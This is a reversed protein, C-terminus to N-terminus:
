LKSVLIITGVLSGIMVAIIGGIILMDKLKRKRKKSTPASTDKVRAEKVAKTKLKKEKKVKEVVPREYTVAEQNAVSTTQTQQIPSIKTTQTQQRAVPASVTATNVVPATFRPMIPQQTQQVPKPAFTQAQQVDPVSPQTQEIQQEIAAPIPEQHIREIEKRVDM